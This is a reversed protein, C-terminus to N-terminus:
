ACATLREETLRDSRAINALCKKCTVESRDYSHQGLARINRAADGFCCSAWGNHVTAIGYKGIRWELAGAYHVRM